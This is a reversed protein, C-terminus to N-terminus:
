ESKCVPCLFSDGRRLVQVPSCFSLHVWGNCRDCCGWKVITLYPKLNKDKPYFEKCVICKDSDAIEEDSESEETDENLTPAMKRKIGSPGAVPALDVTSNVAKPVSPGPKQQTGKTKQSAFHVKISEVVQSETIAKGGVVKSLTKRVKSQKVNKLIEGGKAELFVEASIDQECSELQAVTSKPFATAPAVASPSIVTPDFPFIGSKKFAAQINSASLTSTYVRCAISCVDYRTIVSGGSERLYKHCASNWALELPGYCSVDLPQLIHSCHPPLVFLIIHQEVAWEILPITVHSKHGDYLVLVYSSSDRAPLYKVLHEKMYKEFIASNSWGSDSVTGSTGPSAGELLSDIMRKGPFVFFPPVQQGVANACGIMTITQSKGSTVAQAKYMKGAVIKPPKHESNLGKEDINFICQPKDMLNYKNLITKLEGFYNSIATETAYKARAVELSRPKTVKLQPWRSMFGYFWDFGLPHNKERAGLHFAYDSALNLTEQRSYGYGVEAMTQLHGALLAEQEQNLVTAPGSRVTDLDVRGRVRDKLTSIPVSFRKAAREVALGDEIVAKYAESL